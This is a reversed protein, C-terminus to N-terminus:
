RRAAMLGVLFGLGAAIGLATGPQSRVVAEAERGHREADARLRDLLDVGSQRSEAAKSEVLAALDARLAALDAAIDEITPAEETDTKPARAM